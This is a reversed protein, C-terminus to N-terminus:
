KGPAVIRHNDEAFRGDSDRGPMMNNIGKEVDSVAEDIVTTETESETANDTTAAETKNNNNGGTMADENNTNATCSSMFAASACMILVLATAILNRKIM